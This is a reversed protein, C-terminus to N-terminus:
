IFDSLGYALNSAFGLLLGFTIVNRRGFKKLIPGVGQATLVAFVSYVMFIWGTLSSDIGKKEFQLPMFPAVISYSVCNFM